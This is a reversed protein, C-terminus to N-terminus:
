TGERDDSELKLLEKKMDVVTFEQGEILDITKQDVHDKLPDLQKPRGLTPVTVHVITLGPEKPDGSKDPQYLGKLKNIKDEIEAVSQWDKPTVAKSEAAERYRTLREITMATEFARDSKDFELSFFAKTDRIDNYATSRSYSELDKGWKRLMMKATMNVSYRKLCDRCYDLRQEYLELDESMPNKEPSAYCEILRDILTKNSM